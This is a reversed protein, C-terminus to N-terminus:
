GVPKHKAFDCYALPHVGNGILSPFIRAWIELFHKEPHPSLSLNAENADHLYKKGWFWMWMRDYCEKIKGEKVYFIIDLIPAYVKTEKKDRESKCSLSWM